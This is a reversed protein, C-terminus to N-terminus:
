SYYAYRVAQGQYEPSDMESTSIFSRGWGSFKLIEGSPGTIFPEPKVPSYELHMVRQKVPKPTQPQGMPVVNDTPVFPPAVRRASQLADFQRRVNALERKNCKVEQELGDRRTFAQCSSMAECVRDIMDPPSKVTLWTMAGQRTESIELMAQEGGQNGALHGTEIPNIRTAALDAAGTSDATPARMVLVPKAPAPAMAARRAAIMADVQRETEEASPMPAQPLALPQPKAGVMGAAGRPAHGTVHDHGAHWLEENRSTALYPAARPKGAAAAGAGEKFAAERDWKHRRTASYPAVFTGGRTHGAVQVPAAFLDGAAGGPIAAKLFLVLGKRMMGRPKGGGARGPPAKIRDGYLYAATRDGTYPKWDEGHLVDTVGGPQGSPRRFIAGDRDYYEFADDGETGMAKHMDAGAGAAGSAQQWAASYIKVSKDFADQWAAKDQDTWDERKKAEISRMVEYPKHGENKAKLVGKVHLQVEALMGNPPLKVILNADRYGVPLPKAFRDKPQMALEMGGAKLKDLTTHLDDLSDVAISCRVVDRLKSWDGGYDSAVKEAARAQGKLPAIFLMGGPKSWDVDDPSVTMTEYGLQSAIGKGRDLWDKLHELAPAAAKYLEDATKVPQEVTKPLKAVEEAPFLPKPEAPQDGGKGDGKEVRVPLSSWGLKQASTLTGNGDTVEYKGDERKRVSIPDRKGLAGHYAAQMRKPGNDGGQQNEEASKTSALKDLPVVEHDGKDLNFYRGHDEPLKDPAQGKDIVRKAYAKDDEGAQRPEYDPKGDHKGTLHEHRVQHERGDETAVTVGDAGSAVIKGKGAVDGHRFGVTDGHQMPAAAPKEDPHENPGRLKQLDDWEPRSMHPQGMAQRLGMDDKYRDNASMPGKRTPMAANQGIRGSADIKAGISRQRGPGPQDPMTRTWRKEHRGLRDTTDKLALGPRNAVAQGPMAKLFLIRANDIMAAKGLRDMGGLLPDDKAPQSSALPSAKPTEPLAGALFRRQGRADRVIAGDAGQDEVQLAHVVRSRHGLVRDFPVKHREGQSCDGTLGHQGVAKVKVALPGRRPHRIYVEDGVDIGIGAPSAGAKRPPSM